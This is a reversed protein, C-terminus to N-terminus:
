HAAHAANPDRVAELRLRSGEIQVIRFLGAHQPQPATTYADWQAGRYHVRAVGDARWHSVDVTQGLDLTDAVGPPARHRDPSRKAYLLAVAACGVVAAVAIQVSLSPSFWAVLAGAGLGLAIMLLYFSGTLLEALVCLGALILWVVASTFM